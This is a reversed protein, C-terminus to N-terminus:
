AAPRLKAEALSFVGFLVFGIAVVWLVVRGWTQESLEQLAGSIGKSEDPDHQVAAVIFFVGCIALVVARATYGIRGFTRLVGSARGAGAIRDMHETQVVYVVVQYAAIGILVLGIAGVLLVGGPLDLLASTAQQSQEDGSGGSTGSTGGGDWHDITIKGATVALAGYIVAKAGYKVRDLPEDGEVPDGTFAQIVHWITLCVLGITLAVLLFRGTPQQAVREIAGTQSVQDSSAEGRAFQVALIGLVIYLAGKAVLGARALPDRWEAAARGAHVATDSM